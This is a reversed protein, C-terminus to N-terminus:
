LPYMLSLLPSSSILLISSFFSCASPLFQKDYTITQYATQMTAVLHCKYYRVKIVQATVQQSQVMVARHCAVQPQIM